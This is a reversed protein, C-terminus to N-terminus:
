MMLSFRVFESVAAKKAFSTEVCRRLSTLSASSKVIHGDISDLLSLSKAFEGESAAICADSVITALRHTDRTIPTSGVFEFVLEPGDYEMIAAVARGYISVHPALFTTADLLVSRLVKARIFINWLSGEFDTDVILGAHSKGAVSCGAAGSCIAGSVQLHSCETILRSLFRCGDAPGSRSPQASAGFTVMAVNAVFSHVEGRTDSAIKHVTDVLHDLAADCDAGLLRFHLLAVTVFRKAHTFRKPLPSPFTVGDPIRRLRKEAEASRSSPSDESAASGFGDEGEETEGVARLVWNPLHPRFLELNSTLVGISRGVEPDGLEHKDYWHLARRVTTTDYRRLKEATFASLRSALAGREYVTKHHKVMATVFVSCCTTLALGFGFVWLMREFLPGYYPTGISISPNSGVDDGFAFTVNWAQVWISCFGLAVPLWSFRFPFANVIMFQISAGSWASWFPMEASISLQCLALSAFYVDCFVAPCKKTRRVILYMTAAVTSWLTYTACWILPEWSGGNAAVYGYIVFYALAFPTFALGIALASKRMLDDFSDGEPDLLPTFWFNLVCDKLAVLPPCTSEEHENAVVLGALTDTTTSM